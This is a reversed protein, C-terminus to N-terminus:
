YEYYFIHFPHHYPVFFLLTYSSVNSVFTCECSLLHMCYCTGENPDYTPASPNNLSPIMKQRSFFQYLEDPLLPKLLQIVPDMKALPNLFSFSSKRRTKITNNNDHIDLTEKPPKPPDLVKRLFDVICLRLLNSGPAITAQVHVELPPRTKDHIRKNGKPDEFLRIAGFVKGMGCVVRTPPGDGYDYDITARGSLVVFISAQISPVDFSVFGPNVMLTFLHITQIRKEESLCRWFFHKPLTTDKEMYPVVTALFHENNEEIYHPNLGCQLYISKVKMYANLKEFLDM